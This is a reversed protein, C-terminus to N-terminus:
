NIIFQALDRSYSTLLSSKLSLIDVLPPSAKKSSKSKGEKSLLQSPYNELSYLEDASSEAAVLSQLNQSGLQYPLFFTEISPPSNFTLNTSKGTSHSQQSHFSLLPHSTRQISFTEFNDVLVLVPASLLRPATSIARIRGSRTHLTEWGM